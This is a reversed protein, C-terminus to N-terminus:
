GLIEKTNKMNAKILKVFDKEDFVSDFLTQNLNEIYVNNSPDLTNLMFLMKNGDHITNISRTYNEYTYYIKNYDIISDLDLQHLEKVVSKQGGVTGNLEIPRNQWIRSFTDMWEPPNEFKFTVMIQKDFIRNLSGINNGYGDGKTLNFDNVDASAGQNFQKNNKFVFCYQIPYKKFIEIMSENYKEIKNEETRFTEFIHSCIFGFFKSYPVECVEVLKPYKNSGYNDTPM